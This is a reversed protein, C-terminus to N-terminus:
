RIIKKSFYGDLSWKGAGNFALVLCLGIMLLHFEFGEGKQNGFWNMFFGNELHGFFIMGFFMGAIGVAILRTAFGFLLLLPGFFQLVITLFAVLWPLEMLDTFTTMASSFGPGGFWGIMLQAGHPFLVSAITLRNLLSSVTTGGDKSILQNQIIQKMNTVKFTQWLTGELRLKNFHCM